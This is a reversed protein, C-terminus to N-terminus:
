VEAPALDEELIAYALTDLWIPEDVVDTQFFINKRLYGERRMGIREMLKWSATNKPNCYAVVRHIEWKAFGYRVLAGAAEAAYGQHQYAPNFIYGLEWTKLAQPEIQHFYLHGIIQDTEKLAVAWFESSEARQAALTKAEELTISDGPEFRYVEPNSLYDFLGSFDEARFHRIILRQTQIM